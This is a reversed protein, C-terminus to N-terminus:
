VEWSRQAEFLSRRAPPNAVTGGGLLFGRAELGISIDKPQASLPLKYRGWTSPWLTQTRLGTRRQYQVTMIWWSPAKRRTEGPFLPPVLMALTEVHSDSMEIVDGRTAM